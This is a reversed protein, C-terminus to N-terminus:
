TNSINTYPQKIGLVFNEGVSQNAEKDFIRPVAALPKVIIPWANSVNPYPQRM